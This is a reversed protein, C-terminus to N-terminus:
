HYYGAVPLKEIFGGLQAVFHNKKLNFKRYQNPKCNCLYFDFRKSFINIGYKKYYKLIFNKM